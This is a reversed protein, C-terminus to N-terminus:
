CLLFFPICFHQFYQALVKIDHKISTQNDLCTFLPWKM